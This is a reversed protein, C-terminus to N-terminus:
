PVIAIAICHMSGRDVSMRCDVCAELPTAVMSKTSRLRFVRLLVRWFLCKIWVFSSQKPTPGGTKWKSELAATKGDRLRAATVDCM